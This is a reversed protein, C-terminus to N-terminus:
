SVDEDAELVVGPNQAVPVSDQRVVHVLALLDRGGGLPEQVVEVEHRGLDPVDLLVQGSAIIALQGLESRALVGTVGADVRHGDLEDTMAVAAEVSRLEEAEDVAVLGDSGQGDALEPGPRAHQLESEDLVEPTQRFLRKHCALRTPVRIGVHGPDIRRPLSCRQGQGLLKVGSEHHLEELLDALVARAEGSNAGSEGLVQRRLLHTGFVGNSVLMLTQGRGLDRDGVRDGAETEGGREVPALVELGDAQHRLNELAVRCTNVSAHVKQAPVAVALGRLTEGVARSLSLQSHGQSRDLAGAEGGFLARRAIAGGVDAIMEDSLTTGVELDVDGEM